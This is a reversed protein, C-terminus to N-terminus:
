RLQALGAPRGAGALPARSWQGSASAPTARVDASTVAPTLSAACCPPPRPRADLGLGPDRMLAIASTARTQQLDPDLAAM